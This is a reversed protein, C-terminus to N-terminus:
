HEVIQAFLIKMDFDISNSCYNVTLTLIIFSVANYGDFFTLCYTSGKYSKIWSFLCTSFFSWFSDCFQFIVLRYFRLIEFLKRLEIMLAMFRSVFCILSNRLLGSFAVNQHKSKFVCWNVSWYTPLKRVSPSDPLLRFPDVLFRQDRPIVRTKTWAESLFEFLSPLIPIFLRWAKMRWTCNRKETGLATWHLTISWFIPSSVLFNTCFLQFKRYSAKENRRAFSFKSALKTWSRIINLWLDLYRSQTRRRDFGLSRAMSCIIIRM